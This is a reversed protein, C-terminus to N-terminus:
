ILYHIQKEQGLAELLQLQTHIIVFKHGTQIINKQKKNELM